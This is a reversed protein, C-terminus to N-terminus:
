SRMILAGKERDGILVDLASCIFAYAVRLFLLPLPLASSATVIFKFLNNVFTLLCLNEHAAFCLLPLALPLPLGFRISLQVLRPCGSVAVSAAEARHM